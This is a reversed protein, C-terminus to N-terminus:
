DTKASQSVKLQNTVEKVGATQKALQEARAAADPSPVSGSLTVVGAVTTVHIESNKTMKDGHLSLKVQATIKTDRMATITANGAHKVANVTDSGAQEAATGAQHMSQTAPPSSFTDQALALGGTALGFVAAFLILKNIGCNAKM